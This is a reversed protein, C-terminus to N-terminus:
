ILARGLRARRGCTHTACFVSDLGGQGTLQLRDGLLFTRSRPLKELM